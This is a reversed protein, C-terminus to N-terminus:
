HCDEVKQSLEQDLELVQSRRMACSGDSMEIDAVLEVLSVQLSRCGCIGAEASAEALNILSAQLAADCTQGDRLLSTRAHYYSELVPACHRDAEARLPVGAIMVTAVAVAFKTPTNM